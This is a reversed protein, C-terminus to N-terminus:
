FCNKKKLQPILENLRLIPGAILQPFFLIFESISFFNVSDKNFINKKVDIVAAIATFTIFSIALPVEDYYAYELLFNLKTM